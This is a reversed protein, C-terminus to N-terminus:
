ALFLRQSVPYRSVDGSAWTVIVSEETMAHRPVAAPVVRVVTSVAERNRRIFTGPKVDCVPITKKPTSKLLM